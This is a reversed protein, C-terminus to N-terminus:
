EFSRAVELFARINDPSTRRCIETMMGPAGKGISDRYKERIGAPHGQLMDGVTHLNWYFFVDTNNRITEICLYQDMGPDYQTVGMRSLFALHEPHLTEAHLHRRPVDYAKYLQDLYPFEFQEYHQPSILGSYDDTAGVSVVPTYAEGLKAKLSETLRLANETIMSLLRHVRRPDTYVEAFLQEGRLLVATTFPGQFGVSYGARPEENLEDRFYRCAAIYGPVLGCQAPDVPLRMDDVDKIDTIARPMSIQPDDDEPFFVNLGLTSAIMYTSGSARETRRLGYLELFEQNAKRRSSLMIKPDSFYTRLPVGAYEAIVSDPIGIQWPTRTKM